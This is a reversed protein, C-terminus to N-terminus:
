KQLIIKRTMIRDDIKIRLLYIGNEYNGLNVQFIEHATLDRTLLQKGTMDFISIGANVLNRFKINLVANKDVPNPFLAFEPAVEVNENSLTQLAGNVYTCIGFGFDASFTDPSSLAPDPPVLDYYLNTGNCNSKSFTSGDILINAPYDNCTGSTIKFQVRTVTSQTGISNPCNQSNAMGATFIMGLIFLIYNKIM